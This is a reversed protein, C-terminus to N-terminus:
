DVHIPLPIALPLAVSSTLAKREVSGGQLKERWRWHRSNISHGTGASCAARPGHKHVSIASLVFGPLTQLQPSSAKQSLFCIASVTTDPESIAGTSKNELQEWHDTLVHPQGRGPLGNFRVLPQKRSSTVCLHNDLSVNRYRKHRRWSTFCLHNDFSVNRCSTDNRYRRTGPTIIYCDYPSKCYFRM